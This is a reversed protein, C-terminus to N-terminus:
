YFVHGGINMGTLGPVPTRFFVCTGVNTKGSMAEDAARYCDANALDSALALELRGSQAPSFQGRQYVVGVVSDPFKASLVRNIVVAGVALKGEYPESGAECYIINALLKRDGDAFSVDGISRWTANAAAQSLRIEEELKKKLAKLDAEKEKLQKEYELAKQEADAIQDAYDAIKVSIQSILGAVRSKEVETELKLNDLETKETQLRAETTEIFDRNDQYERLKDKDYVEVREFWTALNLLNGLSGARLLSTVYDSDNREYMKRVRITMSEYQWEETSIANALEEQTQAIEEEKDAIQGELEELHGSVQLMEQNLDSLEEQLNKKEHKLGNIDGKQDQLKDELDKKENEKDKIQEQTTKAQVKQADSSPPWAGLLLTTILIAAVAKAKRRIKM